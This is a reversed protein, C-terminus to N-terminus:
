KTLAQVLLANYAETNDQNKKYEDWNNRWDFAEYGKLARLRTLALTYKNRQGQENGSDYDSLIAMDLAQKGGEQLITSLSECEYERYDHPIVNNSAGTIYVKNDRVSVRRIKTHSM